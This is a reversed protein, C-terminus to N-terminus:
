SPQFRNECSCAKPIPRLYRHPGDSDFMLFTGAMSFEDEQFGWGINLAVEHSDDHILRIIGTSSNYSIAAISVESRISGSRLAMNGYIEIVKSDTGMSGIVIFSSSSIVVMQTEAFHYNTDIKMYSSELLVWCGQGVINNTQALFTRRLCVLGDNFITGGQKFRVVADVGSFEILGSNLIQGTFKVPTVFKSGFKYTFDGDNILNGIALTDEVSGSYLEMSRTNYISGFIFVGKGMSQLLFEGSNTLIGESAYYLEDGSVVRFIGCNSFRLETRPVCFKLPGTTKVSFQANALNLLFNEILFSAKGGCEFSCSSDVHNFLRAISIRARDDIQAELRGRNNFIFAVEFSKVNIFEYIEDRTISVGTTAAYKHDNFKFTGAFVSVFCILTAIITIM